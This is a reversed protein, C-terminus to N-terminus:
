RPCIDRDLAAYWPPAHELREDASIPAREQSAAWLQLAHRLQARREQATMGNDTHPENSM